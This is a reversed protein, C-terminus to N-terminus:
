ASGGLGHYSTGFKGGEGYGCFSQERVVWVRIRGGNIARSLRRSILLIRTAHLKAVAEINYRSWDYAIFLYVKSSFMLYKM